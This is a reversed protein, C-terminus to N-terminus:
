ARRFRGLLGRRTVAGELWREVGDRMPNYRRYLREQEATLPLLGQMVFDIGRKMVHATGAPLGAVAPEFGDSTEAVMWATGASAHELVEAFYSALDEALQRAVSSPTPDLTSRGIRSWTGTPLAGFASPPPDTSDAEAQAVMARWRRFLHDLSKVSGDLARADGGARSFAQRIRSRAEDQAALWQPLFAEEARSREPSSGTVIPPLGCRAAVTLIHARARSREFLDQLLTHADEADGELALMIARDIPNFITQRWEVELVSRRDRTRDLLPLVDRTLLDLLPSPDDTLPFTGAPHRVQCDIEGVFRPRVSTGYRWVAVQEDYIGIDVAGEYGDVTEVRSLEIAQVFGPDIERNWRLAQKRFGAERLTPAIATALAKLTEKWPLPAKAADRWFRELVATLHPAGLAADSRVILLERDEHVVDVVGDVAAIATASSAVLDAYEHAIVDEYTVTFGDTAPEVSFLDGDHVLDSLEEM